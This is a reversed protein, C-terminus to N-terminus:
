RGKFEPKKKDLFAKVGIRFDETDYCAYNEDTDARTLPTGEELRRIFRKHWRNVLPAGSAIRAATAYAEAEVEDDPVVRTVLGKAYAEDAGMIRGELLIELTTARGVLALLAKLEPYAITLGLRNIPVGFRSSTGCIRLDCMAALELGGGVCAGRILAVTPHPCDLIGTTARNVWKDYAEAEASSARERAFESIDAGAAFAQNGAGRIVICRVTRDGGLEEMVDGFRKWAPLNLANFKHPRNLTVTVIAGERSVLVSEGAEATAADTM